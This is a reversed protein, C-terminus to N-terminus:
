DVMVFAGWFYPQPYKELIQQQASKFALYKDQGSLWNGYFTSMLENTVQDSVNWFSMVITEVGALKFARQLGYVGEGADVSGLGTQCASLIALETGELDLTTAEYSTLFGDEISTNPGSQYYNSVGSLLLGSNFMAESNWDKYKLWDTLNEVKGKVKLTNIGMFTGHTGIHLVSPNKMRKIQEETAEPGTYLETSWGSNLFLGSVIEVEKQTGPLPDLIEGKLWEGTSLGRTVSAEKTLDGLYDAYANEDMLYTPNGFLVANKSGPTSERPKLLEKTSTVYYLDFEELLYQKSKYNYLTNLNLQSYVGAGSLYIKRTNEPLRAAIPKWYINYLTDKPMFAPDAPNKNKYFQEYINTGKLDLSKHDGISVFIPAPAEPYLIMAAYYMTDTNYHAYEKKLSDPNLGPFRIIEVAAEGPKLINRIDTWTVSEENTYRSFVASRDAITKELQNAEKRLAKVSQATDPLQVLKAIENKLNEWQDFQAILEPDGSDLVQKKVKASKNLLQSKTALRIDYADSLLNPVREGKDMTLWYLRDIATQINTWYQKREEESMYHFDEYTELYDDLLYILFKRSWHYEEVAYAYRVTNILHSRHNMAFFGADDKLTYYAEDYLDLAESHNGAERALGAQTYTTLYMNINGMGSVEENEMMNQATQKGFDLAFQVQEAATMSGSESAESMAEVQANLADYDIYNQGLAAMMGDGPEMAGFPVIRHMLMEPVSISPHWFRRHDFDVYEVDSMTGTMMSQYNKYSLMANQHDPDAPDGYKKRIVISKESYALADEPRQVYVFYLMTLSEMCTAYDQSTPDHQEFIRNVQEFYKEALQYNSSTSMHYMGLAYVSRAYDLLAPKEPFQEFLAHSQEFLNLFSGVGALANNKTKALNSLAIALQKKNEPNQKFITIAQNLYNEAEKINVSVMLCGLNNLSYGYYVHEIGYASATKELLTNALTIAAEKTTSRYAEVIESNKTRWEFSQSHGSFHILMLLYALLFSKM